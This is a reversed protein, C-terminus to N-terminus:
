RWRAERVQALHDRAARKADRKRAKREFRNMAARKEDQEQAALSTYGTNLAEGLQLVRPDITMNVM